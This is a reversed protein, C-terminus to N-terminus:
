SPLFVFILGIFILLFGTLVKISLTEKLIFFSAIITIIPALAVILSM